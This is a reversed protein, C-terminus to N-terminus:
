SFQTKFEEYKKEANQTQQELQEDIASFQTKFEEYKKETNELKESFTSFEQKIEDFKNTWDSKIKEIMELNSEVYNTLDVMRQLDVLQPDKDKPNQTM